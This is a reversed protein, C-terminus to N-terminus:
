KDLNGLLLDSSDVKRDFGCVVGRKLVEIDIWISNIRKIVRPFQDIILFFAFTCIPLARAFDTAFVIFLCQFHVIIM